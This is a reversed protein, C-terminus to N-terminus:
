KTKLIFRNYYDLLKEDTHAKNMRDRIAKVLRKHHEPTTEGCMEIAYNAESESLADLLQERNM